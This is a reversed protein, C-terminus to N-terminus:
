VIVELGDYAVEIGARNLEQRELSDERLIPNTNNIHIVIRRAAKARRIAQVSGDAGGLPWHAMDRAMRRGIGLRPLEDDSWFTGDFFLCDGRGLLRDVSPCRGAVCPAYAVSSGNPEDTFLLAVNNEPQPHVSGELYLPVKGSVPLATVTLGSTSGDPLLLPQPCELKFEHWTVQDPTQALARSFRNGDMFAQRVAETAYVHLPQSERLALLGLTQDLDANTLLIGAIPSHRLGRPHLPPFAAIQVGIDPSVHVVFWHQENLSIAISAQTRPTAKITRERVGRCNECGCNWQPFGGGAAAGLVHM